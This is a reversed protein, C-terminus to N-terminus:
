STEPMSARTSAPLLAAEAGNLAIIYDIRREEGQVGGDIQKILSPKNKVTM